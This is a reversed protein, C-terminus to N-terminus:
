RVLEWARADPTFVLKAVNVTSVFQVAADFVKRVLERDQAFFLINRLLMRAADTTGVADIRNERGQVLFFLTDIAARLNEGSRALEGSFPTGYAFYEAGSRRVYSVEDTLVNVGAPALRAMTTKGAGSIGSFLFARGNRIASAAHLLFGGEEALILSHTIRLVSDLSYPNTSQRVWGRRSEIDWEARFDGRQLHWTPGNRFVRADEDSPETPATLEFSFEFEAKADRSTFGAYRGEVLSRFEADSCKLAIPIAGIEVNVNTAEPSEAVVAGVGKPQRGHMM